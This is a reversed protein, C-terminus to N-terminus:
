KAYPNFENTYLDVAKVQGEKLDGNKELWKIWVDYEADTIVGGKESIGTSKWLKLNETPEKGKRASVIKEMRAIVEEKPTTRAWEIVKAM